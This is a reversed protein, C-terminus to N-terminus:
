PTGKSRTTVGASPLVERVLHDGVDDDDLLARLLNAKHLPSTEGTGKSTAELDQEEKRDSSSSSVVVSTTAVLADSPAPPMIGRGDFVPM